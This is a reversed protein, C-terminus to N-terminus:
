PHISGDPMITGKLSKAKELQETTINQAGSLNAGSLDVGRLDVSSLNTLILNAGSLNAGSLDSGSLKAGRLEAGRLKAGVLRAGNLDAGDLDVGSLDAGSLIAKSLNAKSLDAGGLNAGSLNAGRLNAGSLDARSLDVGTRLSTQPSAALLTMLRLGIADGPDINSGEHGRTPVWAYSVTALFVVPDDRKVVTLAPQVNSFGRGPSPQSARFRRHISKGRPNRM